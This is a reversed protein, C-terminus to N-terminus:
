GAPLAGGSVCIRTWRARASASPGFIRIASCGDAVTGRLVTAAKPASRAFAAWDRPRAKIAIVASSASAFAMPPWVDRARVRSQRAAGERNKSSARQNIAVQCRQCALCKYAGRIHFRCKNKKIDVARQEQAAPGSQAGHRSREVLGKADRVRKCPLREAPSGIRVQHRFRQLAGSQGVGGLLVVTEALIVNRQKGFLDLLRAGPVLAQHRASALQELREVIM